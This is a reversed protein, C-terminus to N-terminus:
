TVDIKVKIGSKKLQDKLDEAIKKEVTGSFVKSFLWTIIGQKRAARSTDTIDIGIRNAGTPSVTADIDSVSLSEDIRKAIENRVRGSVNVGMSQGASVSVHGSHRNAIENINRITLEIMRASSFPHSSSLRLASTGPAGGQLGVTSVWPRLGNGFTGGPVAM